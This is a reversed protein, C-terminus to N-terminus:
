WKTCFKKIDKLSGCLANNPNTKFGMEKLMQFSAWQNPALPKREPLLSYIFVDLKRKAALRPDKLRLSGAAANRPNAFLELGAMEQAQNIEEFRERPLYVEGRVEVYPLKAFKTTLALPVSRITRINATVIDGRTGDGRTVGRSLNGNEYVISVSSGDIKLEAVYDIQRHGIHKVVREHFADLEDFNYANDLSIMPTRHTATPFGEVPQEGVRQTPSDPTILAPHEEELKRLQILLQDFEYDSIEPNNEVYYRYEHLRVLNRLKEIQKQIDSM